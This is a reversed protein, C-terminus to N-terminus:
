LSYGFKRVWPELVPLVPELHKRYNEWRGASRTYIPQAVQAYSATKIRGRSLATTEHDLVEDRWEVGIFEFLPRLQRERDAILDEYVVRHVPLKFLKEAQEFYRFSLDYLEAATELSVFNSMGDNLKFNTVYCSLVVDCPHRLALIIRAGPFLRAIIPLGNMSLPNKDILTQGPALQVLNAATRFYEARAATIQEDTAEPIQDFEPLLKTANRLTPEEELVQLEDHGMLMTDLLTTGSRPFGVLFLPSSREDDPAKRWRELWAPTAAACQRAITARYSAARQEPLSPDARLNENMKSFAAFAEDYQGVGEYLQGLLHWRRPSEIEEPVKSLAELGEAFRKARRHDLAQLFNAANPPVGGAAAQRAHAALEDGRNTLEFALGLGLNGPGSAPDIALAQRYAQEAAATNLLSLQHSALALLMDVDRPQRQVAAAIAELAEEDRAQEKYLAHLEALAKTDQPFEEAIERLLAEAEAIKGNSAVALAHNLRVPPSDPSIEAARELAALAGEFDGGLRRANGLNNWSEWDAPAVAVVREYSAAATAFDESMQAAFGRLRELRMSPDRQTLEDSLIDLVAAYDGNQVLASALNTAIIPDTPRLAFAARLYRIGAEHEGARLRFSGIMANLAAPDGGESLAREGIESAEQLRGMSAARVADRIASATRNDLTSVATM